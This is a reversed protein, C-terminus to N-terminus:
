LRFDLAGTAPRAAPRKSVPSAAASSNAASAAPNTAPSAPPNVSSTESSHNDAASADTAGPNNALSARPTSDVSSTAPSSNDAPSADTAAPNNAPTAAPNNAVPSTAASSNAVPPADTAAPNNRPTTVPNSTVPSSAVSDNAASPTPKPPPVTANRQTARRALMEKFFADCIPSLEIRHSNLCRIIGGRERAVGACLRQVDPGCSARLAASGTAATVTSPPGPSRAIPYSPPAVGPAPRAVAVRSMCAPSLEGRHSLLCQILRGQGPQVGYCLRHLDQGCDMRFRAGRQWLVPQTTTSSIQPAATPQDPSPNDTQALAAAGMILLTGTILSWRAIYHTM